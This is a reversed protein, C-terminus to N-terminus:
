ELMVLRHPALTVSSLFPGGEKLLALCPAVAAGEESFILRAQEGTSSEGQPQSLGSYPGKRKEIVEVGIFWLVSFHSSTTIKM